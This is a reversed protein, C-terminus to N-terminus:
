RPVVERTTEAIAAYFPSRTEAEVRDCLDVVWRRLHEDLFQDLRDDLGREALHACFELETVVHDPLDAQEPRNEVGFSHYWREVAVTAPGMVEGFGDGDGDRYVSEYPPCPPGAPGIFLRAHESRLDHLEISDLPGLLPTLAGDNVASILTETPERWCTALVAYTAARDSDFAGDEARPSEGSAASAHEPPSDSM